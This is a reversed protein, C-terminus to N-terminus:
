KLWRALRKEAQAHTLTRRETIALEGQAIGNLIVLRLNQRKYTEFKLPPFLNNM